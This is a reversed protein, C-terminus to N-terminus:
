ARDEPHVYVTIPGAMSKGGANSRARRIMRQLTTMDWEIAYRVLLPGGERPLEITHRYARRPKRTAM